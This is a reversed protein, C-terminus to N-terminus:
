YRDSNNCSAPNKEKRMASYYEVTLSHMYKCTYKQLYIMRTYIYMHIYIYILTHLYIKKIWNDMSKTIKLRKLIMACLNIRLVRHYAPTYKKNVQPFFFYTYNQNMFVLHSNNHPSNDKKTKNKSLRLSFLDIGKVLHDPM